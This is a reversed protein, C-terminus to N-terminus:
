KYRAKNVFGVSDDEESSTSSCYFSSGKLSLEDVPDHPVEIWHSKRYFSHKPLAMPMLEIDTEKDGAVSCAGSPSNRIFIEEPVDGEDRQLDCFDGTWCVSAQERIFTNGKAAWAIAAAAAVQFAASWSQFGNTTTDHRMTEAEVVLASSRSSTTSGSTSRILPPVTATSVEKNPSPSSPAKDVTTTACPALDRVAKFKEKILAAFTPNM